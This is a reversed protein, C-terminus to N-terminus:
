ANVHVDWKEIILTFSDVLTFYICSMAHKIKNM